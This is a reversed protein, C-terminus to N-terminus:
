EYWSDEKKKKKGGLLFGLGLGALFTGLSMGEAEEEAVPREPLDALLSRAKIIAKQSVLLDEADSVVAPLTYQLVDELDYIVDDLTDLNVETEVDREEDSLSDYEEREAEGVEVLRNKIDLLDDQVKRLTHLTQKDM